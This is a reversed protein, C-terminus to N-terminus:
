GGDFFRGMVDAAQRDSEPVRGMYIDATTSNRRHGLRAAIVPIPVGEDGCVTAMTDRLDHIKTRSPLGAAACARQFRDTTTRPIWFRSSDAEDSFVFATDALDVRCLRARNFARDYLASLEALTGADLYVTRTDGTKTYPKLIWEGGARVVVERITVRGRVFNVGSWRLGHPESRRSGIVTSLRIFAPLADHQAAAAVLLAPVREPAVPNPLQRVGAFPEVDAAANVALWKRRRGLELSGFVVKHVNEIADAGLGKGTRKNGRVALHAYLAELHEVDVKAGPLARLHPTIYGASYRLTDMTNTAVRTAKHTLFADIIQGFSHQGDVPTAGHAELLMTARALAADKRTGTVVRSPRIKRGTVPDVGAYVFVRWRGPGYPYIGDTAKAM